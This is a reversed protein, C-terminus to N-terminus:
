DDESNTKLARQSHKYIIYIVMIVAVIIAIWQSTSLPGWFGRIDDGRLFEDAFRIVAYPLLYYPILSVSDQKKKWMILLFVFLLIECLAELPQVPFRPFDTIHDNIGETVVKESYQIAFPGHYEIGYCCGTLVCGIRGVFHFFPFATVFVNLYSRRNYIKRAKACICIGALAGFLGGYYVMGSSAIFMKYFFDGVDIAPSQQLKEIFNPIQTLFYLIHAGFFAGVAASVGCWFLDDYNLKKKRGMLFIILITLLTGFFLCISYPSLNFNKGFIFEFKM